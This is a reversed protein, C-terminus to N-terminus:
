MSNSNRKLRRCTESWKKMKGWSKHVQCKQFTYVHSKTLHIHCFEQCLHQELVPFQIWTDVNIPLSLSTDRGWFYECNGEGCGARQLRVQAVELGETSLLWCTPTGHVSEGFTTGEYCSKLYYTSIIISLVIIKKFLLLPPLTFAPCQTVYLCM